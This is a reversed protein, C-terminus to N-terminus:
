NLQKVLTQALIQPVSPPFPTVCSVNIECLLYTDSGQADLPGFLFDADWLIPLESPSIGLLSQLGPVWTSELSQKLNAFEAEDAALMTKAAPIGFIRDAPVAERGPDGNTAYQRAFGVVEGQVMYARVMGDSVRTAFAQDILHGSGLFYPRMRDFFEELSVFDVKGDRPAAHQICLQARQTRPTSKAVLGVKWVGIGGNGRHQKLVRAPGAWLREPFREVFENFDLYRHTDLSWSLERTDYLVDKTGMKLIVDPHTFVKTGTSSSERLVADLIHRDRDGSIPDVWVLVADSASIATRAVDLREEVFALHRVDLGESMLAEIVALYRPEVKSDIPDDNPSGRWVVTVKKQDTV